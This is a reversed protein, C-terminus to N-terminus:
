LFKVRERTPQDKESWCFNAWPLIIKYKKSINQQKQKTKRQLFKDVLYRRTTKNSGNEKTHPQKEKETRAKKEAVSLWQFLFPLYKSDNM